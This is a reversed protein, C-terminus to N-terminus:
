VQHAQCLTQLTQPQVLPHDVHTFIFDQDDLTQLGARLSARMGQQWDNAYVQQIESPLQNALVSAHYGTVLVVPDCGVEKCLKVLHEAFSTSQNTHIKLLAKPRQMRSSRGASLIIAATTHVSSGNKNSLLM